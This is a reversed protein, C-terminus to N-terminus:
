FENLDCFVQGFIYYEGVSITSGVSIYLARRNKILLRQSRNIM